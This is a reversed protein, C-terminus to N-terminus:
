GDAPAGAQELRDRVASDVVPAQLGEARAQLAEARATLAATEADIRLVAPGAEASAVRFMENPLLTPRPAALVYDSPAVDADEPLGCGALALPLLLAALRASM